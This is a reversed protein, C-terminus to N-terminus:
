AADMMEALVRWAAPSLAEDFVTELVLARARPPDLTQALEMKALSDDWEGLARGIAKALDAILGLEREAAALPSEFRERCCDILAEAAASTM